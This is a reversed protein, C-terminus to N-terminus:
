FDPGLSFTWTLQQFFRKRLPPSYTGPCLASTEAVYQGAPDRRYTLSNNSTACALTTVNPNYYIPGAVRDYSNWGVNVQFPGIPTTLRVGIGPTWKLRASFGPARNWVDGGDVFFTYQLLNPAIFPDRVRLEVNSVFLSNGGLPVSRDPAANSDPNESTHFRYSYSGGSLTSDIQVDASRAIYVLSGLENQQFGRVSTPGGAYLREQPPIFGSPDSLSLRRGLVVGGRLRVALVSTRGVPNYWAVDGTAKNFFLNESTGLVRSASTRAETRVAWGRTPTIPNDTRIRALAASAVGLTALETMSRRSEPDCRNFLACLAADPADTKGYEITYALRLPTRDGVDRTASVDGGGLTQRLYARFEGRRESYVSLAPVWRTGLLRPQRLTAGTFYHIRASFVSDERLDTTQGLTCLDRTAKTALPEGYGIKSAQGTLELRRATGFLNKDTYQLRLRVCDLTAWTYESSLQKMLDESLRVGLIVSDPYQQENDPLPAIEVHRYAGLQFLNRQAEVIAHDSYLTGPAIGLLRRVVSTDIQVSRGPAPDIHFQPAAFRMREGPMVAISAEAYKTASTDISYGPVYNARYYGADRLRKIITDIDAAYLFRDFPQGVHLRLRRMIAASDAIGNLGTVAYSRLPVPEGENILFTVAVGQRGRPQVLTDVTAGFYGRLKYYERLGFVDSRLVDSNLCRKQAFWLNLHRRWWSSPTTVVRLALDDDSFARNGEFKLSRVERDGPDCSIDQARVPTPACVAIAFLAFPAARLAGMVTM